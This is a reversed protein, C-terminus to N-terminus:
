YGGEQEAIVRFQGTDLWYGEGNLMTKLVLEMAQSADVTGSPPYPVEGVFREALLVDAVNNLAHELREGIEASAPEPQPRELAFRVTVQKQAGPSQLLAEAYKKKLRLEYIPKAEAGDGDIRRAALKLGVLPTVAREAGAVVDLQEHQSFTPPQSPDVRGMGAVPLYGILARPVEPKLLTLGFNSQGYLAEYAILSGVVGCTKADGIKGGGHAFPYWDGVNQESLFVVQGPPVAMAGYIQERVAPNSSPRGGVILLDCAYQDVIDACQNITKGVTKRVVARMKSRDLHLKVDKLRVSRSSSRFLHTELRSLSEVSCDRVTGLTFETQESSELDTLCRMAIPVWAHRVLQRRLIGDSPVNSAFFSNWQELELGTQKLIEPFVVEELLGRVIEDGARSVGDHFLRQCTLASNTPRSPDQKYDAIALDITGGGIDLSALRLTRQSEPGDGRTRGVHEILQKVRGGHRHMVEGFLWCVQIALGEDCVIQVGPKPVGFDSDVPVEAGEWFEEPNTRFESWLKCAVDCARKYNRIEQSHMGAPYVIVVNAIERRRESNPAHADARRWLTSNIQRFSQELIEVLAWVTGAIRPYNPLVPPEPVAPATLPRVSNMRRLIAGDICAPAKLEDIVNAFRWQWAVPEREEWLYRKPSSMGLPRPDLQSAKLLDGAPPGMQTQSLFRFSECGTKTGKAIDHRVFTSQTEFPCVHKENPNTPYVLHLREERPDLGREKLLVCTRSNGLDLVLDVKVSKGREPRAEFVISCADGRQRLMAAMSVVALQLDRSGAAHNGLSGALRAPELAKSLEKFYEEVPRKRWFARACPAIQRMGVENQEIGQPNGDDSLTTDIALVARYRDAQTPYPSLHLMAWLGGRDFPLPVWVGNLSTATHFILEPSLSKALYQPRSGGEDDYDYDYDQDEGGRNARAERVDSFRDGVEIRTSFDKATEYSIDDVSTYQIGTNPVLRISM